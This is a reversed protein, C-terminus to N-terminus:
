DDNRDSGIRRVITVAFALMAAVSVAAVIRRGTLWALPSRGSELALRAELRARTRARQLDADWAPTADSSQVLTADWAQLADFARRCGACAALHAEADARVHVDDDIMQLFDRDTLHSGHTM